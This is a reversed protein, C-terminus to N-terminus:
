AAKPAEEGKIREYVKYIGKATWQGVKQSLDEPAASEKGEDLQKLQHYITYFTRGAWAGIATLGAIRGMGLAAGITALGQVTHLVGDVTGVKNRNIASARTKAVGELLSYTGGAFGLIGFIGGPQTGFIGSDVNTWFAGLGSLGRNFQDVAHSFAFAKEFKRNKGKGEPDVGGPPQSSAQQPLSTGAGAAKEEAKRAAAAKLAGYGKVGMRAAFAGLAAISAVQGVTTSGFVPGWLALYTALGQMVQLNGHLAGIGDHNVAANKAQSAGVAVDYTGGILSFIGGLGLQPVGMAGLTLSFYQGAKGLTRTFVGVASAANYATEYAQKHKDPSATQFEDKEPPRSPGSAPAPNGAAVARLTSASAVPASIGTV